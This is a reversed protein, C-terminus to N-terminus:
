SASFYRRAIKGLPWLTLVCLAIPWNEFSVLLIVGAHYFILAGIYNGVVARSSAKSKAGIAGWIGLLGLLSLGTILSASCEGWFYTVVSAAIVIDGWCAAPLYRKLKSVDDNQTEVKALATVFAIYLVEGIVFVWVLTELEFSGAGLLVNFGRALGMLLEGLVPIKKGGGDYLLVVLAIITAIYFFKMGVFYAIGVGAILLAFGIAGALARSIEGSPIPREPREQADEKLDFFDNLVMGGEYLCISALILLPQPLAGRALIAGMVVDGPVTFINPIRLLALLARLRAM